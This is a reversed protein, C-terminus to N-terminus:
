YNIKNIPLKVSYIDEFNGGPIKLKKSNSKTHFESLIKSELKSIKNM